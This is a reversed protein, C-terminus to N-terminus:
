YIRLLSTKKLEALLKRMDSGTSGGGTVALRREYLLTESRVRLYLLIDEVRVRRYSHNEFDHYGSLTDPLKYLREDDLINGVHTFIAQIDGREMKNLAYIKAVVNYAPGGVMRSYQDQMFRCYGALFNWAEEEDSIQVYKDDAM